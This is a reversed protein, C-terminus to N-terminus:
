RRKQQNQHPRQQPPPPHAVPPLGVAVAAMEALAAPTEKWAYAVPYVWRTTGAWTFVLDDGGAMFRGDWRPPQREVVAGGRAAWAVQLGAETWRPLKLADGAQRAAEDPSVSLPVVSYGEGGGPPLLLASSSLRRVTAESGARETWAGSLAAYWEDVRLREAAAALDSVLLHIRYPQHWGISLTPRPTLGVASLRQSVAAYLAASVPDRPDWEAFLFQESGEPTLSPSLAAREPLTALVAWVEEETPPSVPAVRRTAAEQASLAAQQILSSLDQM